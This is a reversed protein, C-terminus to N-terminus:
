VDLEEAESSELAKERAYEDRKKANIEDKNLQYAARRMANIKDKSSGEPDADYYLRYYERPDYDTVFTDKKHRVAYTCDCNSHCHAVHGNQNLAWEGAQRWGGSALAICYACTDGHPVFAIQANDRIANNVTTDVGAQKTMRGTAAGLTEVKQSQEYVGYLTQYVDRLTATPAPVAPPLKVNELAAIEDYMEACLAASAEGYKTAIAYAYQIVDDTLTYTRTVANYLGPTKYVFDTIEKAATDDIQRLRQVFWTWDRDSIIM